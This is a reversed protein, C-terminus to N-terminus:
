QVIATMEPEHVSQKIEGLTSLFAGCIGRKSFFTSENNATSFPFYTEIHTEFM